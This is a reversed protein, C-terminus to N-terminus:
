RLTVLGNATRITAVIHFTDGRVVTVDAGVAALARRLGEADPHEIRLEVLRGGPPVVTAPHVTKGWSILFPVAGQMPMAYPDTLKWRLTSGDPKERMGSAVPGLPVGADRGSEAVAEIDEARLVWTVLGSDADAPIDVLAGQDPAPVDPDRAIVELYTQPGLSLLANHTGYQLHRGGRVPRVGLLAEIENMGQELTASAYVLHDIGAPPVPDKGASCDLPMSLAVLGMLFLATARYVGGCNM